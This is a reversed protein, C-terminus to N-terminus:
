YPPVNLTFILGVCNGQWITGSSGNQLSTVTITVCLASQGKGKQGNLVKWKRYIREREREYVHWARNLCALGSPNQEVFKYNQLHFRPPGTVVVRPELPLARGRARDGTDRKKKERETMGVCESVFGRPKFKSRAYVMYIQAEKKKEGEEKKRRRKCNDREM